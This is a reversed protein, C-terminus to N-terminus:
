SVAAVSASVTRIVVVVTVIGNGSSIAVVETITVSEADAKVFKKINCWARSIWSGECDFPVFITGGGQDLLSNWQGINEFWYEFSNILVDTYHSWIVQQEPTFTSTPVYGWVANKFEQMTVFDSNDLMNELNQIETLFITHINDRISYNPSRCEDYYNKAISALDQDFRADFFDYIHQHVNARNVGEIQQLYNFAEELIQNHQQGISGAREITESPNQTIVEQKQPESSQDSCEVFVFGFLGILMIIYTSRFFNIAKM